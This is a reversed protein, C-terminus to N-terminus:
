RMAAVLRAVALFETVPNEVTEVKLMLGDVGSQSVEHIRDGIQNPTGYIFLDDFLDDSIMGNNATYGAKAFMDIYFPAQLYMSIAQQGVQKAIERDEHWIIAPSAIAPPVPRNVADASTKIAPKAISLVYSLPAWGSLIGDSMEGGLRFMPERLAALFIPTQPPTTPLMPAGHVQFYEGEFDVAGDWLMQRLVTIYEKMYTVPKGFDLGYMGEIIFPHSSGLGLRIRGPALEGVALAETAMALPHRTYVLVIGTGLQINKTSTALASILAIPDFSLPVSPVWVGQVGLKDCEVIADYTMKATPQFVVLSMDM